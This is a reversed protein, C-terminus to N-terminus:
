KCKPHEGRFRSFQVRANICVQKICEVLKSLLKEKEDALRNAIQPRALLFSYKSFGQLLQYPQAGSRSGGSSIAASIAPMLKSDIEGRLKAVITDETPGMSGQYQAIAEEWAKNSAGGVHFAHVGGFKGFVTDLHLGRREEDSLLGKLAEHTARLDLIERHPPIM